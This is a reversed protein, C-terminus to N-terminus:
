PSHMGELSAQQVDEGQLKAHTVQLPLAECTPRDEKPYTAQIQSPGSNYQQGGEGRMMYLSFPTMQEYVQDQPNM